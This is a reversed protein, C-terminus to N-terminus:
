SASAAEPIPIPSRSRVRRERYWVILGASVIIAGGILTFRDPVDGFVLYGALAAWILQAFNFPQLVSAPAAALALIVLSHGAVGGVAVLALLRWGRADPMEWMVLTPLTLVALGVLGTFLMLRESPETRSLMRTLILYLAFSSAGLLIVLVAPDFAVFGPRVIVLAGLFGLAVAAWRVPGVREGLLPASMATVMLPFTLGLAQTEAMPLYSLAIVVCSINLPLLLGRLVQLPLRRTKLSPIIGAGRRARFVAVMSFGLFFVFLIQVVPLDHSLAKMGIDMGTFAVHAMLLFLIGKAIDAPAIDTPAIKALDPATPPQPM